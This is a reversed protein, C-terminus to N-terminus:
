RQHGKLLTEQLYHVCWLHALALNTGIQPGKEWFADDLFKWKKNRRVYFKPLNM